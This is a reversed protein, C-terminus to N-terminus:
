KSGTIARNLRQFTAVDLNKTLIDALNEVGPVKICAVERQDVYQQVSKRLKNVHKTKGTPSALSEMLRVVAANDEYIRTPAPQKYGIEELLYRAWLVEFTALTFGRLEAESISFSVHIDRLSRCLFMGSQANLRLAIGLQARSEGEERHSADVWAELCIPGAGGVTVGQDKAGLLYGMVRKAAKVHVPSPTVQTSGLASMIHLTGPHARDAPFRLKGVISRLPPETGKPELLLDTTTNAPTPKIDAVTIGESEAMDEIYQQQRVTITRAPRDRSIELGLYKEADGVVINRVRSRIFAELEDLLAACLAAYILDDVFLALLILGLASVKFYLCPDSFCRTFGFDILISDVFKNWEYGSEKLGYLSKLLRVIRPKGDKWETKPLQLYIESQAPAELYANSVDLHRLDMDEAAAIHLFMMLTKLSITPAFTQFYHVGYEEMFGQAVIRSRFKFDGNAERSVRRAWKSKIPRQGNSSEVEEWTGLLEIGALEKAHAATWQASWPGEIADKDTPPVPPLVIFAPAVAPAIADVIHASVLVGLQQQLECQEDFLALM